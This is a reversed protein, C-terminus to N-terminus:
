YFEIATLFVNVCMCWVNNYWMTLDTDKLAAMFWFSRNRKDSADDVAHLGSGVEILHQKLQNADNVPM